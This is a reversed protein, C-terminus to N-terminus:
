MKKNNIHFFTFFKECDISCIVPTILFPLYISRYRILSGANPVIYGIFLFLTLSLLISFFLFPTTPKNKRYFLLMMLFLLGYCTFELSALKYFGSPFEWFYPRLVVHNIANPSNLIFSKVTPALTDTQMQSTALPLEFFDKQKQTIIKLPNFSPQLLQVVWLSLAWFIYVSLFTILINTKYRSCIIWALTVPLLAVVVYNRVFLLVILSIIIVLIRKLSFKQQLSFFMSYCFIGLMAFVVCDKNLGSSFYLVSPLLFCGAIVAWKRNTYINIFVRYLAVHGFFCLFNFFLSNIYYNGRSFINLIAVIKILINFKLDSWYSGISGYFNGYFNGYNSKFIDTFFVGPKSIMIQYEQQGYNNLAWNDSGKHYFHISIYGYVIGALVKLLFLALITKVALNSEKIFSIRTIFFCAAALYFIFLLYFM